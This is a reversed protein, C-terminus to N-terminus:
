RRSLWPTDAIFTTDSAECGMGSGSMGNALPSDNAPYVIKRSSPEPPIPPNVEGLMGPQRSLIREFIRCM